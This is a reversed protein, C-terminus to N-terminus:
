ENLDYLYKKIRTNRELIIQETWKESTFVEKTSILQSQSLIIEKKEEFTKNGIDSNIGKDLLVLNGINKVLENKIPQWKHSPIEPYIHEISIDKLIANSNKSREIKNLVYQVLSKQKTEKSSYYVKFDFNANYEDESVYKDKLFRILENIVIHKREKNPAEYLEKAKKAYSNDFGSSRNSCIANNIFHFKEMTHLAKMLMDKSINRLKYDRLLAILFANAVRIKFIRVIANLSEFINYDNTKWDGCQPYVILKFFESDSKLNEVFAKAKSSDKGIEKVIEQYIAQDSVKKYRSAFSNNLFQERTKGSSINELIKKWSDAPENLHPLHPYLSFLYNKVLDMSTLDKGTANLTKFITYADTLGEAAVFITELKLIKDRFGQLDQTNYKNLNTKVREYAAVIRKEGEKVPKIAENRDKPKSQLRAQLIPYPMNNILIAYEKNNIDRSFIYQNHIADALDNENLEIFRDRIACLFITITTIRQQGDIVNFTDGNYSGEFVMHGIFYNDDTKTNAIDEFFEDINNDDWDYERQFDPIIFKGKKLTSSILLNQAEVKM